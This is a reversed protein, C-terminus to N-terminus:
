RAIRMANTAHAIHTLAAALADAADAPHPREALSLLRQVMVQVQEKDAHGYGAVTLKIRNPAYESVPLGAEEAVLMVVGRVHGLKLASKPDKAFFTEELALADPVEADIVQRLGDAIEKLRMPLPAKATTRIVGWRHCVPAAGGRQSVVGFGTIITGPDVGIVKM